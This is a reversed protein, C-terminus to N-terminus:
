ATSSKMRELYLRQNRKLVVMVEVNGETESDPFLSSSLAYLYIIYSPVSRVTIMVLMYGRGPKIQKREM